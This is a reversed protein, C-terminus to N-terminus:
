RLRWLSIASGAIGTQKGAPILAKQPSDMAGQELLRRAEDVLDNNSFPKTMFSTVGALHALQRDTVPRQRYADDGADAGFTSQRLDKVIEMGSRNPLMQDLVILDPKHASVAELVNAGDTEM